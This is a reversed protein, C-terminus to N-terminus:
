TEILSIIMGHFFNHFHTSFLAFRKSFIHFNQSFQAFLAHLGYWHPKEGGIM